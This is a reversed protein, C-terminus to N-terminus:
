GSLQAPEPIPISYTGKWESGLSDVAQANSETDSWDGLAKEISISVEAETVLAMMVSPLKFYLVVGGEEFEIGVKGETVIDFLDQLVSTKRLTSHWFFRSMLVKGVFRGEEMTRTFVVENNPM